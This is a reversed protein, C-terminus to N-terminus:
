AANSQPYAWEWDCAKPMSAASAPGATAIGAATVTLGLASAALARVLNNRIKM